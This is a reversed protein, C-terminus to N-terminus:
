YDLWEKISVLGHKNCLVYITGHGCCNLIVNNTSAIINGCKGCFYFKTRKMNAMDNDNINVDYIPYIKKSTNM